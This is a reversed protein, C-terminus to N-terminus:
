IGGALFEVASSCLFGPLSLLFELIPFSMHLRGSLSHVGESASWLARASWPEEWSWTLFWHAECLLGARLFVPVQILSCVFSYILLEKEGM